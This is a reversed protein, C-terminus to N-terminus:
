NEQSEGFLSLVGQTEVPIDEYIEALPVIIEFNDLRLEGSLDHVFRAEWAGNELRRFHEVRAIDLSILVYDTLEPILAYEDFKATRDFRETEPSLVEFIASPNLLANKDRTGYREPPCVILFDPYVWNSATESTRVRQDGSAGRCPKGRLRGHIATTVNAIIHAHRPTGGAMVFLRGGIYEHCVPSANEQELLQAHSLHNPGQAQMALTYLTANPAISTELANWDLAEM